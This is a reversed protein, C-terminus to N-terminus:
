KDLANNVNEAILEDNCGEIIYSSEEDGHRKLQIM